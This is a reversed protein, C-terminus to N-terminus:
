EAEALVKQEARQVPEAEFREWGRPTLKELPRYRTKYQMRPAGEVWYGLYVYPLGAKAAHVIHDLIIFNGLGDREPHNADFFSYIMSLGDSQRDTLCAGVLKGPKGDVSPERYEIVYTDVPTQEVMDAFDMEDM